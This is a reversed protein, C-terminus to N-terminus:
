TLLSNTRDLEEDLLPSTLITSARGRKKAQEDEYDARVQNALEKTREGFDIEPDKEIEPADPITPLPAQASQNAMMQSFMNMMMGMDLGPGPDVPPPPSPADSKSGM